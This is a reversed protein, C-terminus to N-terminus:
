TFSPSSIIQLPKTKATIYRQNKLGIWWAITYIVRFTSFVLIVTSKLIM